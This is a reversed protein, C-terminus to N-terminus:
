FCISKCIGEWQSIKTSTKGASLTTHLKNILLQGWILWTQPRKQRKGKSQKFGQSVSAGALGHLYPQQSHEHCHARVPVLWHASKCGRVLQNARQVGPNKNHLGQFGQKKLVHLAKLGTGQRHLDQWPTDHAPLMEATLLSPSQLWHYTTLWPFASPHQAQCRLTMSWRAALFLEM